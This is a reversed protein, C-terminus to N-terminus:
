LVELLRDVVAAPEPARMVAGMVAVGYAGADVARRANDPTVGGLALVPVPHGGLDAPDIPPGYGPKSPTPVFPSLTVYAAGEAAARRVAEATHCSRGWDGATPPPQDAALHVGACGPLPGRAALVTLGELAALEEALAARRDPPLDLERVVVHTLGAAVCEAVTTALRRGPLLQSRDTLLLLRPANM